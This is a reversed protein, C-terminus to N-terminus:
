QSIAVYCILLMVLISTSKAECNKWTSKDCCMMSQGNSCSVSAGNSNGDKPDTPVPVAVALGVLALTTLKTFYM